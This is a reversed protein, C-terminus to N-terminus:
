GSRPPADPGPRRSTANTVRAGLTRTQEFCRSHTTRDTTSLHSRGRRSGGETLELELAGYNERAHAPTGAKPVDRGRHGNTNRRKRGTPVHNSSLETGPRQWQGGHRLVPVPRWLVMREGAKRGVLAHHQPGREFGRLPRGRGSGENPTAALDALPATLDCEPTPTWPPPNTSTTLQSVGTPRVPARQPWYVSSRYAATVRTALLPQAAYARCHGLGEGTDTIDTRVAEVAPLTATTSTCQSLISVKM